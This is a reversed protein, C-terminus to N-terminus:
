PDGARRDNDVVYDYAPRSYSLAHHLGDSIEGAVQFSRPGKMGGMKLPIRDQVIAPRPAASAAPPPAATDVADDEM